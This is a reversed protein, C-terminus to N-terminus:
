KLFLTSTPALMIQPWHRILVKVEQIFVSSAQSSQNVAKRFRVTASVDINFSGLICVKERCKRSKEIYDFIKTQRLQFQAPSILKNETILKSLAQRNVIGGGYCRLLMGTKQFYCLDSRITEQSVNFLVALKSVSVSHDKILLNLISTRREEKFM